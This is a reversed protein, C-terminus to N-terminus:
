YTCPRTDGVVRFPILRSGAEAPAPFAIGFFDDAAIQSRGPDHVPGEPEKLVPFVLGGPDDAGADRDIDYGDAPITDQEDLDDTGPRRVQVGCGQGALVARFDLVEPGHSRLGLEPLDQQGVGAIAAPFIVIDQWSTENGRPVQRFWRCGSRLKKVIGM